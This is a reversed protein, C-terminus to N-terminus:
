RLGGRIIYPLCVGLLAIQVGLGFFIQRLPATAHFSAHFAHYKKGIFTARFTKRTWPVNDVVDPFVAGTAGAIMSPSYYGQLTLVTALGLGISVDAIAIVWHVPKWQEDTGVLPYVSGGDFHPIRDCLHHSIIGLAFASVPEGTAQGIASGIILHTTFLMSVFNCFVLM